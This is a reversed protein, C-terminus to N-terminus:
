NIMKINSSLVGISYSMPNRIKIFTPPSEILKSFTNQIAGSSDYVTAVPNLTDFAMLTGGSTTSGMLVLPDTTSSVGSIRVKRFGSTNIELSGESNISITMTTNTQAESSKLQSSVKLSDADLVSPLKASMALQTAEIALGSNFMEQVSVKLNGAGTLATPLKSSVTTGIDVNLRESGENGLEQICVKLNGSGTLVSPLKASMASQTTEKSVDAGYTEQISVKLNGSGTLATPLKSSVTTGIDVNLRESGENGLEQISVKLNGSGTLVEPLKSSLTANNVQLVGADSCLLPTGTSPNNINTQGKIVQPFVHSNIIEVQQNGSINRPYSSSPM